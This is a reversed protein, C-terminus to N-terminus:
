ESNKGANLHERAMDVASMQSKRVADTFFTPTLVIASMRKIIGMLRALSPADLPDAEEAVFGEYRTQVRLSWLFGVVILAIVGLVSWALTLRLRDSLM